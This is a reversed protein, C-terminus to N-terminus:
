RPERALARLRRALLDDADRVGAAFGAVGDGCRGLASRAADLRDAVHRRALATHHALRGAEVTDGFGAPETPGTAALADASATLVRLVRDVVDPAVELTEDSM